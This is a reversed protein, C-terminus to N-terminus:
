PLYQFILFYSNSVESNPNVGLKSVTNYSYFFYSFLMCTYKLLISEISKLNYTILHMIENLANIIKYNM